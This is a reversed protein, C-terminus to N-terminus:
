LKVGSEACGTGHSVRMRQVRSPVVTRYARANGDGIEHAEENVFSMSETLSIDLSCVVDQLGCCRNPVANGERATFVM